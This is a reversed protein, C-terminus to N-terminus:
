FVEKITKKKIRTDHELSFSSVIFLFVSLAFKPSAIISPLIPSGLLRIGISRCVTCGM